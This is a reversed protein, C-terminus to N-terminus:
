FIGALQQRDQSQHNQNHFFDLRLFLWEILQNRPHYIHGRLTKGADCRDMQLDRALDLTM